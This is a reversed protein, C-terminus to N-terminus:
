AIFIQPEVSLTLCLADAMWMRPGYQLFCQLGYRGIGKKEDIRTSELVSRLLGCPMYLVRGAPKYSGKTANVVRELVAKMLNAKPLPKTEDPEGCDARIVKNGDRWATVRREQFSFRRFSEGPGCPGGM